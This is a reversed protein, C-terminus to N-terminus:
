TSWAPRFHMSILDHNVVDPFKMIKLMSNDASRQLEEEETKLQELETFYFLVLM